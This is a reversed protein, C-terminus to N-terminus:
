GLRHDSSSNLARTLERNAARSAELDGEREELTASLDVVKQELRTITRQLEDVDVPTGLGSERWTQEGLAEALRKELRQVQAVLPTNRAHANALDAQLSALSVPSAGAPDQAAPELAM